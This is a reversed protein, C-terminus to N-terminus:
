VADTKRRLNLRSFLVWLGAGILVWFIMVSLLVIFVGASGGGEPVLWYIVADPILPGVLLSLNKGPWLFAETFMSGPLVGFALGGLVFGFALGFGAAKLTGKLTIKM